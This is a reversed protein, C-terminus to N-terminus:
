AAELRDEFSMSPLVGKYVLVSKVANEHVHFHRSATKIQEETPNNEDVINRLEEFPCLLSRAFARQFKQRDTKAQSVIGFGERNTWIADGLTRALEYRRNKGPHTMAAVGLRSNSRRLTAAYRLEAGQTERASINEISTGLIEALKKNLVPRRRVDAADRVADAITEALQWPTRRLVAGQALHINAVADLGIEVASHRAALVAQSLSPVSDAGPVAAAAEEVGGNGVVEDFDILGAMVDDPARDPDYGLRAELRRWASIDPDSRERTLELMLRNFVDGGPLKACHRGIANLMNLLQTEYEDGAISTVVPEIYLQPGPVQEKGIPAFVVREGSSYIMIPPWLIGGCISSIEHCLRWNIPRFNPNALSEWRLRWFNRAFWFGMTLGSTSFYDRASQTDTDIIRTFVADGCGISVDALDLEDDSPSEAWRLSMKFHSRNM